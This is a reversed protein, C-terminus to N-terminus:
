PFALAKSNVLHGLSTNFRSKRGGEGRISNNFRQQQGQETSGWNWIEDDAEPSPSQHGWPSIFIRETYKIPRVSFMQRTFDGQGRVRHGRGKLFCSGEGRFCLSLYLYLGPGGVCLSMGTKISSRAADVVASAAADEQSSQRLSKHVCTTRPHRRHEPWQDIKSGSMAATLHLEM